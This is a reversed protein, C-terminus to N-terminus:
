CWDWLHDVSPTLYLIKKEKPTSIDEKEVRHVMTHSKEISNRM